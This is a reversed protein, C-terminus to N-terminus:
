AGRLLLVMVTVSMLVVECLRRQVLKLLMEYSEGPFAWNKNPTFERKEDKQLQTLSLEVDCCNSRANYGVWICAVNSLKGM